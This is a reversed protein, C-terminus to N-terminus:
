TIQHWVAGGFVWQSATNVNILVNASSNNVINGGYNHNVYLSNSGSNLVTLITGNEFLETGYKYKSISTINTPSTSANVKAIINRGKHNYIPTLSASTGSLTIGLYGEGPKGIGGLKCKYYGINNSGVTNNYVITGLTTNNGIKINNFSTDVVESGVIIGNALAVPTANDKYKINIDNAVVKSCVGVFEIGTNNCDKTILGTIDIGNVGGQAGGVVHVSRIIPNTSTGSLIIDNVLAKGATILINTNCNKVDINIIKINETIATDSEVRIGNSQTTKGDVVIGDILVNSCTGFYADSKIYLGDEKTNETHLNNMVVNRCKVVIGFYGYASHLNDCYVDQFSELLIAHRPTTNSKLLTIVNKVYLKEGSNLTSTCKLGDNDIASTASGVDVGFDQLFVNKGSCFLMGDIISGGELSTYDNNFKPMLSGEIAVFNNTIASGDYYYRKNALKLIKGTNIANRIAISDNARTGDAGFMEPTVYINNFFEVSDDIESASSSISHAKYIADKAQTSSIRNELIESM